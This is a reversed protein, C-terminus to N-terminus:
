SVNRIISKAQDYQSKMFTSALDLSQTYKKNYSDLKTLDINSLSSVSDRAAKIQTQLNTIEDPTLMGVGSEDYVTINLEKLLEKDEATLTQSYVNNADDGMAKAEFQVDGTFKASGTVEKGTAQYTWDDAADGMQFVHGDNTDRDLQGGNLGPDGIKPDNDAIGTVQISQNGKTITLGNTYVNGDTRGKSATDVSIKTGDDLIFTSNSQFDWHGGRDGESVHPDGWIKTSKGDSDVISWSENEGHFLLKNGNDLMIEMPDKEKDVKWTNEAVNETHSKHNSLKASISNLQKIQDNQDKVIGAQTRIQDDLTEARDLMTQMMLESLSLTESQGAQKIGDLNVHQVGGAGASGIDAM